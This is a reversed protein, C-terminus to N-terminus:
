AKLDVNAYFWCSNNHADSHEHLFANIGSVRTSHREITIVHMPQENFFTNEEQKECRQLFSKVISPVQVISLLYFHKYDFAISPEDIAFQNKADNLLLHSFPYFEKAFKWILCSSIAVKHSFVYFRNFKILIFGRL